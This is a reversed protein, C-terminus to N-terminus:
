LPNLEGKNPSQGPGAVTADFPRLSDANPAGAVLRATSRSTDASPQELWLM